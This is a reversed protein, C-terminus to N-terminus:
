IFANVLQPITHRYLLKCMETWTTPCHWLVAGEGLAGGTHIGLDRLPTSYVLYVELTSQITGYDECEACVAGSSMGSEIM